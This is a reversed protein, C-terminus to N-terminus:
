PKIEPTTVTYYIMPKKEVQTMTGMDICMNDAQQMQEQLRRKQYKKIRRRKTQLQKLKSVIEFSTIAIPSKQPTHNQM